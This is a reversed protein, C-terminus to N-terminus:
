WGGRYFVLLTPKGAVISRLDADEGELSRVSAPPVESGLLLPRIETAAAAPAALQRAAAPGAFSGVFVLAAIGALARCSELARRRPRPAAYGIM